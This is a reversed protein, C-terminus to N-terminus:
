KAFAGIAALGAVNPGALAHANDATVGGLAFVPLTAARALRRFAAPGLAEAGPHSMTSFVPSLIAARAGIRAAAPLDEATRCACSAFPAPAAEAAALRWRPLHVGDAGCADALAADGAVLFFLGRARAIAAYRRAAADRRPEDYDRYIVASGPPLARMIPEPNSIRRRDTMFILSFPAAHGSGAGLDRAAVALRAARMRPSLHADVRM